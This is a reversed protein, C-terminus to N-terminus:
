LLDTYNFRYIWDVILTSMGLGEVGYGTANYPNYNEWIGALKVMAVWRDLLQKTLDNRNHKQLGEMVFWTPFAWMPGRCLLTVGNEYDPSFAPDTASVSPLPYPLWFKSTNILQTNIMTDIYQQPLYNDSLLLPILSQVVESTAQKESGDWDKWLSIFRNLNKNWMKNVIAKSVLEEMQLCYTSLNVDIVKALEALVGWGAALIANVGVDKVFFWNTYNIDPRETRALIKPVNWQYEWNYDYCLEDFKNHL